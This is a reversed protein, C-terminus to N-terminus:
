LQTEKIWPITKQIGEALTNAPRWKFASFVKAMDAQWSDTDYAVPAASGWALESRSATLSLVLEGLEKLSTKQGSGMNYIQGKHESAHEAAEILISVVDHIFVFDRTVTPRTLTIPENRLAKVIMEYVLRGKQIGPGYPTFLRFAVTSLGSVAADQVLLTGALKSISYIEPPDCRMDESIVGEKAGYELFSGTSVFAPASVEKAAALAAETGLVNTQLLREPSAAIGSVINSAALHFVSATGTKSFVAKMADTDTIDVEHIVCSSGKLRSRDGGPRILAHVETGQDVLTRALVSGVFGGAGTVIAKEM